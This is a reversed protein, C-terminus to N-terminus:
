SKSRRATPAQPDARRGRSGNTRTQASLAPVMGARYWVTAPQQTDPAVTRMPWSRWRWFWAGVAAPETLLLCVLLRKIHQQSHSRAYSPRVSCAAAVGHSFCTATFSAIFRLTHFTHSYSANNKGTSKPLRSHSKSNSICDYDSRPPDESKVDLQMEIVM